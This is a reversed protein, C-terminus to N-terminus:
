TVEKKGHTDLTLNESLEGERGCKFCTITCNRATCIANYRWPSASAKHGCHGEYAICPAPRLKM